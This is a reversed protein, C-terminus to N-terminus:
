SRCRSSPRVTITAVCSRARRASTDSRRTRLSPRATRSVQNRIPSATSQRAMRSKSAPGHSKKRAAVEVDTATGTSDGFFQVSTCEGTSRCPFGNDADGSAFANIGDKKRAIDDVAGVTVEFRDSRELASDGLESAFSDGHDGDGPIVVVVDQRADGIRETLRSQLEDANASTELSARDLRSGAAKVDIAPRKRALVDHSRREFGIFRLRGVVRRDDPEQVRIDTRGFAGVSGHADLIQSLRGDRGPNDTM